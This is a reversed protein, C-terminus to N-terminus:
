TLHLTLIHIICHHTSYLTYLIYIYIRIIITGVGTEGVLLVPENMKVCCAVKELLRIDHKTYAFPSPNALSPILSPGTVSSHLTSSSAPYTYLHIRGISITATNNNTSNSASSTTSNPSTIIQPQSQLIFTDVESPTVEWCPAILYVLQEYYVIGRMSAAYIDLVESLCLVRQTDTLHGSSRNFGQAHNQEIRYAAKVIDKVTFKRRSSLGAFFAVSAGSLPVISRTSSSNSMHTTNPTTTTTASSSTPTTHSSSQFLEYTRMLQDVVGPILMPFRALLISSIETHTYSTLTIIHWLYSFYKMNSLTSNAIVENLTRQNNTNNNNNNTTISSSTNSDIKISRTGIIRFNSHIDVEAGPGREPTPLKRRELLPTLSAIIDRPVRDVDEIVLWAGSLCAKTVIGAQWIFEGPVESCVYSGFLSKGDTQDDLTLEVLNKVCNLKTALQRIFFSKGFGIEGQIIIPLNLQISEALKRMNIETTSTMIIDSSWRYNLNNTATSSTTTDQDSLTETPHVSVSHGCIDINIISM